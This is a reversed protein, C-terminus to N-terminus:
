VDDVDFFERAVEVFAHVADFGVDESDLFHVDLAHMRFRFLVQPLAHSQRLNRYLILFRALVAIALDANFGLAEFGEFDCIILFSFFLFQYLGFTRWSDFSHYMHLFYVHISDINQNHMLKGIRFWIFVGSNDFM